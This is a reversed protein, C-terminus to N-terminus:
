RHWQQWRATIDAVQRVLTNYVEVDGTAPFWPALDDPPNLAGRPDVNRGQHRRLRLEADNFPAVLAGVVRGHGLAALFPGRALRDSIVAVGTGFADVAVTREADVLLRRLVAAASVGGAWLLDLRIAAGGAVVIGNREAM